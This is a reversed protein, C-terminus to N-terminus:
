EKVFSIKLDRSKKADETLGGTYSGTVAVPDGIAAFTSLSYEQATLNFTIEYNNGSPTVNLSGGTAVYYHDATGEGWNGNIIIWAYDFTNAAYTNAYAFTGGNYAATSTFTEFYIMDGNGTETDFNISSSLLTLDWNYGDNGYDGYYELYGKDFTAKNGDVLAQGATEDDDEDKECSTFTVAMALMALMFITFLNKM